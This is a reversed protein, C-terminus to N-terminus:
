QTKKIRSWLSKTEESCDKCEKDQRLGIKSECEDKEREEDIGETKKTEEIKNVIKQQKKIQM